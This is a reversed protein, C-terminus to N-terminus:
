SCMSIISVPLRPHKETTIQHYANCISYFDPSIGNQLVAAGHHCAEGTHKKEVVSCAARMRIDFLCETMAQGNM